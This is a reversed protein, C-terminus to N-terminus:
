TFVNKVWSKFSQPLIIGILKKIYLLGLKRKTEAIKIQSCVTDYYNKLESIQGTYEYIGSILTNSKLCRFGFRGMLNNLVGQSFYYVHALQIDGLFDYGRRGSKLSDIGPLEIYVLSGIELHEKLSELEKDINVFHEVVHSLIVLDPKENIVHLKDIGGKVTQIGMKKAQKLLLYNFDFLYTNNTRKFLDLVGGAGGGIDVITFPKKFRETYEKVFDFVLQSHKEQKRYFQGPDDEGGHLRRYWNSYYDNVSNEDWYEKARILGCSRCIVLPFEWGERDVMSILYSDDNGCLCKVSITTYNKRQHDNFDMYIHYRDPKPEARKIPKGITHYRKSLKLRLM